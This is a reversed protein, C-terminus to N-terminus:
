AQADEGPPKAEEGDDGFWDRAREPHAKKWVELDRGRLWLDGPQADLYRRQTGDGLRPSSELFAARYRTPLGARKAGQWDGSAPLTENRRKAGPKALMAAMKPFLVALLRDYSPDRLYTTEGEKLSVRVRGAWEEFRSQQKDTLPPRYARVAILYISTDSLRVGQTQEIANLVGAVNDVRYGVPRALQISLIRAVMGRAGILNADGAEPYGHAELAEVVEALAARAARAKAAAGPPQHGDPDEAAEADALLRAADLYRYSLDALPTARLKTQREAAAQAAALEEALEGAMAAACRAQEPHFLWRKMAVEEVVLQRLGERDVRGGVLRLDVELTPQGAERIRDLREATVANTVTVEIFLPWLVAGGDVPWAKCTVDPVIHGFREELEVLDLSLVESESQIQRRVVRGDPLTAEAEAVWGPVNLQHSEALLRLVAHHLVTQRKLAPDLGAPLDLGDPVTDFCFLAKDRAAAEAKRALDLDDWHVRWCLGNPLLRLRRRLEDPAMGALSRDHVALLITPVPHGDADLVLAAEGADLTGTLEVRLQRGDDLTLVAVARDRFDVATIHVREAPLEVWAEHAKGSLGTARASM